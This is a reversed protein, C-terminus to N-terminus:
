SINCKKHYIYIRLNTIFWPLNCLSHFIISYLINKTYLYMMTSIVSMLFLKFILYYNCINEDTFFHGLVFLTSSVTCILYFDFNINDVPLVGRFFLEETFPVLSVESFRSLLKGINVSELFPFIIKNNSLLINKYDLVIYFLSIIIVIITSPLRLTYFSPLPIFIFVLLYPITTLLIRLFRFYGSGRFTNVSFISVALSIAFILIYYGIKLFIM